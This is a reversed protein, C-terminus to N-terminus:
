PGIVVLRVTAELSASRSADDPDTMTMSVVADRGDLGAATANDFPIFLGAAENFGEPTETLVVNLTRETAVVSGGPTLAIAVTFLVPSGPEFGAARITMFTHIGGQFGRFVPIDGGPPVPTSGTATDVRYEITPGDALVCVDDASTEGLPCDVSTLCSRDPPPPNDNMGASGITRVLAVGAFPESFRGGVAYFRGAGDGWMGHICLNSGTMEADLVGPSPDFRAGFGNAGGVIAEGAEVMFVANLGPTGSFARTTWDTGDYQAVRATGRGGVAVINDQSTGWLAVFDDDAASGAPVQAWAGATHELILGHEGVAFVKGDIGWVKFLSTARRDNPPVPVPAFASGNFHLIVPDGEGVNGGVLWLDDPTAGWIGWLDQTTGTSWSTWSTGDFRIGGGGAGVAYVDGPGFGFVWVLLPVDPIPMMRWQSGDFHYVEGVGPTGGVVFVDNPASGWVASLAGVSATDFAAKWVPTQEGGPSVPTCGLLTLLLAAACASYIRGGGPDVKETRHDLSSLLKARPHETMATQHGDPRPGGPDPEAGGSKEFGHGSRPNFGQRADPTEDQRCASAFAWGRWALGASM